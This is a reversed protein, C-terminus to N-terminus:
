VSMGKADLFEKGEDSFCMKLWLLQGVRIPMVGNPPFAWWGGDLLVPESYGFFECVLLVGEETLEGPRILKGKSM